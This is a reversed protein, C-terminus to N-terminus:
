QIIFAPFGELIMLNLSQGIGVEDGLGSCQTGRGTKRPSRWPHSSQHKAVRGHLIATDKQGTM